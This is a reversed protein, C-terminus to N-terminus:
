PSESNSNCSAGENNCHHGRKGIRRSEVNIVCYTLILCHYFAKPSLYCLLYVVSQARRAERSVKVSCRLSLQSHEVRRGLKVIQHDRGAVPKLLQVAVARAFIRYADIVLPADAEVPFVAISIIHFHRVIM